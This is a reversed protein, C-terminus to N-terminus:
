PDRAFCTANSVTELTLADTVERRRGVVLGPRSAGGASELRYRDFRYTGLLVGRRRGARRRVPLPLDGRRFRCPSTAAGAAAEIM